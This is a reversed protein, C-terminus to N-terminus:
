RVEARTFQSVAPFRPRYVIIGHITTRASLYAQLDQEIVVQKKVSSAHTMKISKGDHSLIGCHSVDLGNVTTLLGVFDGNRADALYKNIESTRYHYYTYQSMEAEKAALFAWDKFGGFKAKNTSVYHIRKQLAEGKGQLPNELVGAKELQIFASSLYQIRDENRENKGEYYRIANLNQVYLAFLTDDDPQVEMSSAIHRTLALAWVNEVLTMCDMREVNILTQAVGCGAAGGGYPVQSFDRLMPIIYDTYADSGYDKRLVKLIKDQSHGVVHCKQERTRIPGFLFSIFYLIVTLKAVM